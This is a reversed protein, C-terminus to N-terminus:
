DKTIASWCVEFTTGKGLTSSVGIRWGLRQCIQQVLYLGIGQGRSSGGQFHREFICNIRSESIGCGSDEIRLFRKTLVIRIVGQETNRVANQLLNGIVAAAMGQPASISVQDLAMELELNKQAIDFAYSEAVEEVLENLQCPSFSDEGKERALFLLSETIRQMQLAARQLRQRRAETVPPLHEEEMLQLGSLLTALPTRLEHSANETFDREREIYAQMKDIFQRFAKAIQNVEDIKWDETIAITSEGPDLKTVQDALAQVPGVISRAMWLAFLFSVGYGVIITLWLTRMLQEEMAEFAEISITVFLRAGPADYRMAHVREGNIRTDFRIGVDMYQLKEPLSQLTEPRGIYRNVDSETRAIPVLGQAYTEKLADMSDRLNRYALEDEMQEVIINIAYGYVGTVLTTLVLLAVLFRRRLSPPKSM